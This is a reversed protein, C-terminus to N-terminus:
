YLYVSSFSDFNMRQVAEWLHALPLLLSQFEGLFYYYHSILVKQFIQIQSSGPVLYMLKYIRFLNETLKLICSFSLLQLMLIVIIYILFRYQFFLKEGLQSFQITGGYACYESITIQKAKSGSERQRRQGTIWVKWSSIVLRPLFTACSFFVQQKTTQEIQGCITVQLFDSEVWGQFYLWSLPRQKQMQECHKLSECFWPPQFHHRSIM